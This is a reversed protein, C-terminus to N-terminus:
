KGDTELLHGIADDITIVLTDEDAYRREIREPPLDGLVTSMGGNLRVLQDAKLQDFEISPVALVKRDNETDSAEYYVAAVGLMSVLFLIIGVISLTWTPGALPDEHDGQNHELNQHTM